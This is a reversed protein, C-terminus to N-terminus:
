SRRSAQLSAEPRAALAVTAARARSARRTQPRMKGRRAAGLSPAAVIIHRAAHDFNTGATTECRLKECRERARSYNATRKPHVPSLRYVLGLRTRGVHAFESATTIGGGEQAAWALLPLVHVCGMGQSQSGAEKEFVRPVRARQQFMWSARQGALRCVTSAHKQACSAKWPCM